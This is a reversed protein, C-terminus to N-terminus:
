GGKEGHAYIDACDCRGLRVQLVLWCVRGALNGLPILSGQAGDDRSVGTSERSPSSFIGTSEGASDRSPNARPAWSFPNGGLQWRPGRSTDRATGREAAHLM